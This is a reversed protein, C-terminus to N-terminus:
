APPVLKAPLGSDPSIIGLAGVVRSDRLVCM